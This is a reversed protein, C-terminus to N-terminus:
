LLRFIRRLNKSPSIGPSKFVVDYQCVADLYRKGGHYTSKTTDLIKKADPSLQEVPMQDAVALHITPHHRHFYSLTSMGEEGLGLILIKKDLIDLPINM